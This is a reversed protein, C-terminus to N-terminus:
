LEEIKANAVMLLYSKGFAVDDSYELTEPNLGISKLRDSWEEELHKISKQIAKRDFGESRGKGLIPYGLEKVFEPETLFYFLAFLDRVLGPLAYRYLCYGMIFGPINVAYAQSPENNYSDIQEVEALLIQRLRESALPEVTGFTTTVDYFDAKLVSDSLEALKELQRVMSELRIIQHTGSHLFYSQHIDEIAERLQGQPTLLFEVKYITALVAYCFGMPYRAHLEKERDFWRSLLIVQARFWSISIAIESDPKERIHPEFIPQMSGYERTLKDDMHDAELAMEKLAAVLKYPDAESAAISFRLIIRGDDELAYFAFRLRYNTELLKLLLSEEVPSVRGVTTVAECGKNGLVGSIRRSGQYLEFSFSGERDAVWHLNGEIPDHLFYLVHQFSKEWKNGAFYGIARDWAKYQDVSKYADTYRGLRLLRSDLPQARNVRLKNFWAMHFCCIRLRFISSKSRHGDGRRMGEERCDRQVATLMGKGICIFEYKPPGAKTGVYTGLQCQILVM